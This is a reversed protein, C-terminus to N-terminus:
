MYTPFTPFPIAISIKPMTRLTKAITNIKLTTGKVIDVSSAVSSAFADIPIQIGIM